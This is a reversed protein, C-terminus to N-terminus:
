PAVEDPRMQSLLSRRTRELLWGGALFLVGLGILGLSRGLKDMLSSFYFWAVTFAFIVIGYNVHARSNERVGWWALFVSVTAILAYAFISPVDHTETGRMYEEHVKAQLWPLAFSMATIALVPLLSRREWFFGVTIMLVILFIAALRLPLPLVPHNETAWAYQAWGETLMPVTILLAIAAIAFLMGWVARRKSHVFATLYV